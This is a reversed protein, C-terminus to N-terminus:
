CHGHFSCPSGWKCYGKSSGKIGQGNQSQGQSSFLGKRATKVKQMHQPIRSQKKSDQQYDAEQPSM